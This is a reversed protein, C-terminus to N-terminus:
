KLSQIALNLSNYLSPEGGCVTDVAKKLATTHKTPNGLHWVLYWQSCTFNRQNWSWSITNYEVSRGSWDAEWSEQKKHHYIWDLSVSIRQDLFLKKNKNFNYWKKCNM